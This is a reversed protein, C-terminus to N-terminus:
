GIELGMGVRCGAKKIVSILQIAEENTTAEQHFTINKAGAKIFPDIWKAPHSVM